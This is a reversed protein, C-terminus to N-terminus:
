FQTVRGYVASGDDASKSSTSLTAFSRVSVKGACGSVTLHGQRVTTSVKGGDFTKKGLNVTQISGPVLTVSLGLNMLATPSIKLTGSPNASIGGEAGGGIGFQTGISPTIATINIACGIQFGTVLEGKTASAKAAEANPPTLTAEGRLTIFAEHTTQIDTLPRVRKIKENASTVSAKWGDDTKWTRSHDPMRTTPQAVAAPVAITAAATTAAALLVLSFVNKM